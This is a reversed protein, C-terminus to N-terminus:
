PTWDQIYEQLEERLIEASFKKLSKGPVKFEQKEGNFAYTELVFTADGSLGGSYIISVMRETGDDMKHVENDSWTHM